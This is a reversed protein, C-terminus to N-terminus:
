TFFVESWSGNDKGMIVLIQLQSTVEELSVGTGVGKM